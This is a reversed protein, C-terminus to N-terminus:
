MEISLIVLCALTKTYSKGFSLFYFCRMQFGLINQSRFPFGTRYVKFKQGLRLMIWFPHSLFLCDQVPYPHSAKAFCFVHHYVNYFRNYMTDRHLSMCKIDIIKIENFSTLNVKKSYFVPYHRVPDGQPLSLSWSILGLTLYQKRAVTSISLVQLAHCFCGAAWGLGHADRRGPCLALGHTGAERM